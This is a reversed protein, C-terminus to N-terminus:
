KVDVNESYVVHYFSVSFIIFPGSLVYWNGHSSFKVFKLKVFIIIFATSVIYVGLIFFAFIRIKPKQSNQVLHYRFEKSKPPRTLM